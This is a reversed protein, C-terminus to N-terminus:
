PAPVNFYKYPDARIKMAKKVQADTMKSEGQVYYFEKVYRQMSSYAAWRGRLRISETSEGMIKDRTAGGARLSHMTYISPLGLRQSSAKMQNTLTNKGFPFLRCEKEDLVQLRRIHKALLLGVFRKRITASEEPARKTNRLNAVAPNPNLPDKAYALEAIPLNVLEGVRLYCDFALLIAVACDPRGHKVM